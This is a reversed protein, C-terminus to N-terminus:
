TASSRSRREWCACRCSPAPGSGSGAAAPWGVLGALAMGGLVGEWTKRPSVRPALKVRGIAHGAFYAGTDAAFALTLIFLVWHAGQPWDRVMRM